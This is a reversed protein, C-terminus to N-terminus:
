RGRTVDARCVQALCRKFFELAVQYSVMGKGTRIARRILKSAVDAKAPSEADFSYVFINTDLFFRDSM